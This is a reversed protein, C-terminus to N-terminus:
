CGDPCSDFICAADACDTMPGEIVISLGLAILLIAAVIYRIWELM